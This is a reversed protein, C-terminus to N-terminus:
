HSLYTDSTEWDRDPISSSGGNNFSYCNNFFSNMNTIKGVDWSGIPQNFGSCGLFMQYMDTVNSTNWGSISPSGGNNFAGYAGQNNSFMQYMNTVNGVDWNGIDQDFARPRRYLYFMQYMTTVNSTDWSGIPQNFDDCSSFVRYM